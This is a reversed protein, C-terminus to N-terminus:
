LLEELFIKSEDNLPMDHNVDLVMSSNNLIFQSVADEIGWFQLIRTKQDATLNIYGEMFKCVEPKIKFKYVLIPRNNVRKTYMGSLWPSTNYRIARKISSQTRINCDVCFYFVRYDGPHDPDKTYTDVFGAEDTLDDPKINDDILPLIVKEFITM